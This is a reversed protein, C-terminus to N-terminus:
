ISPSTSISGELSRPPKRASVAHVDIFQDFARELRQRMADQTNPGLSFATVEFRSRDHM